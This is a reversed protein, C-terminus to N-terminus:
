QTKSKTPRPSLALHSAQPTAVKNYRISYRPIPAIYRGSFLCFLLRLPNYHSALQKSLQIYQFFISGLSIPKNEIVMVPFKYGAPHRLEFYLGGPLRWPDKVRQMLSFLPFHNMFALSTELCAQLLIIGLRFLAFLAYYVLVTPFLFALLTFLISGFVLQDLDYEWNDTRNRLVNYRKGRFLNWLSGATQLMNRYLFNSIAYCVYIHLTMLSLLDMFSSIMMTVGGFTMMGIIFIIGPLYTSSQELIGGWLSVLRIFSRSYFRSLETNLKLGAPWSDLWQLAWEMQHILLNDVTQSLARALNIHNECLFIGFSYGMAFDNIILWITNYFSTYLASYRHMSMSQRKNLSGIDNLLYEAQEARIDIQQVIASADKLRSSSLSAIHINCFYALWKSAQLLPPSFPGSVNAAVIYIRNFLTPSSVQHNQHILSELAKAANFQNIVAECIGNTGRRPKVTFDFPLLHSYAQSQRQSSSTGELNLGNLSYFRLSKSPHRHYFIVVPDRVDRLQLEPPIYSAARCKGKSNPQCKGLVVPETGCETTITRWADTERARALVSNAAQESDVQLVGAVCVVPHNWGYCIGGKEVDVPWFVTTTKASTLSSMASPSWFNTGVNLKDEVGVGFRGDGDDGIIGLVYM